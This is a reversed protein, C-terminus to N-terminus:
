VSIMASDFLIWSFFDRYFRALIFLSRIIGNDGASASHYEGWIVPSRRSNWVGDPWFCGERLGSVSHLTADHSSWARHPCSLRSWALFHRCFRGRNHRTCSCQLQWRNVGFRSCAFASIQAEARSMLDGEPSRKRLFIYGWLIYEIPYLYSAYKWKKSLNELSFFLCSVRNVLSGHRLLIPDSCSISGQARSIPQNKPLGYENMSESLVSSIGYLHQRLASISKSLQDRIKGEVHSSPSEYDHLHLSIIGGFHCRKRWLLVFISWVLNKPVCSFTSSFNEFIRIHSSRKKRLFDFGRLISSVSIAKDSDYSHSSLPRSLIVLLNGDQHFTNQRIINMTSQEFHDIDDNSDENKESLNEFYKQIAQSSRLYKKKQSLSGEHQNSKREHKPINRLNYSDQGRAHRYLGHSKPWKSVSFSHRIQPVFIKSRSFCPISITGRPIFRWRVSSYIISDSLISRRFVLYKQKSVYRSCRSQLWYKLHFLSWRQPKM